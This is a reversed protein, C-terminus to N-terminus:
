SANEKKKWEKHAKERLVKELSQAVEIASVVEELAIQEIGQLLLDRLEERHLQFHLTTNDRSSMIHYRLDSHKSRGVVSRRLTISYSEDFDRRRVKISLPVLEM